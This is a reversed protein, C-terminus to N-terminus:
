QPHPASWALTAQVGDEVNRIRVKGGHLKMIEQVFSLGLGTSKVANPNQDSGPRPLSFFREFMRTLAYEPIPEGQNFVSVRYNGRATEVAISVKGGDRCFDIANDLLNALAQSILLKDGYMPLHDMAPKNVQLSRKRIQPERELLLRDLTPKLDFESANVLETLGELKALSLMKDVLRAMRRNSTNINGVFKDHDAKPLEENLLEVAGRISTIPTKLEHTLSHIYDEVYEKGDLQERMHTLSAALQKFRQDMFHPARAPKGAAMTNAYDSLKQLSGTFWMSIIYGIVLAVVLLVAAYQMLQQSETLLHGELSQISKVISVVGVIQESHRIPAAIVMVKEDDPEQAGPDKFSTRAGYEGELTLQVDRWRSFDEGVTRGESDYIVIGNADTVYVETDVDTKTIQYIKAAFSRQKVETFLQELSNTPLSAAKSPSLLDREILSAMLHAIDVMVSEASQRMGDNLRETANNLTFWLLTGLILFYTIFARLSFSLKM